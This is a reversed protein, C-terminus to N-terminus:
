FCGCSSFTHCPMLSPPFSGCESFKFFNFNENDRKAGNSVVSRKAHIKAQPLTSNDEKLLYQRAGLIANRFFEYVEIQEGAEVCAFDEKDNPHLKSDLVIFKNNIFTWENMIFTYLATNANYVRRQVKM